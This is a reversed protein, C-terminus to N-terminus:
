SLMRKIFSVFKLLYFMDCKSPMHAIGFIFQNLQDAFCTCVLAIAIISLHCL